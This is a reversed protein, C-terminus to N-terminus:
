EYGKGEYSEAAVEARIQDCMVCEGYKEIAEKDLTHTRDQKCTKCIM